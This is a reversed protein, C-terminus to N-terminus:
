TQGAGAPILGCRRVLRLMLIQRGRVQPSSGMERSISLFIEPDAGCRRPHAGISGLQQLVGFTQGAGAPILGVPVGGPVGSALRGRVQPSSGSQVSNSCCVLYDAGCRRPHAGAGFGAFATGDTQGAGAPILGDRRREGPGGLRRGRVQPSSGMTPLWIASVLRTQGAGAPILGNVVLRLACERQRGRVQPSSGLYHRKCLHLDVDAGCRRPHARSTRCTGRGPSTQGAGAPILGTTHDPRDGPHHRGRVQPSSGQWGASIFGFIVDAGCRRPHARSSPRRAPFSATQGAGAPILRTTCTLRPCPSLRGRVQPSSGWPSTAIAIPRLDAGCRRPHATNPPSSNAPICTQGAGAPILGAIRHLRGQVPHRGRVQPSSGKSAM